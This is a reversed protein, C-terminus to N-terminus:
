VYIIHFNNVENLHVIINQLFDRLQLVPVIPTKEYFKQQAPLLSLIIPVFYAHEWGTIGIKDRMKRSAEALAKTREIQSKAAKVSASGSWKQHWHKCDASIVLPKKLGIVDIEWRKRLWAFHFNRKVNFGNTEFALVSFDEFESWTLLRAVREIDSGLNIARIAIKLRNGGGVIVKDDTLELLGESRLGELINRTLSLPIRAEESIDEVRTDSRELTRKLVTVLVERGIPMIHFLNSSKTSTKTDV